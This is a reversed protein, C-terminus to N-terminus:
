LLGQHQMVMILKSQINDIKLQMANLSRTMKQLQSNSVVPAATPKPSSTHAAELKSIMDRMQATLTQLTIAGQALTEPNNQSMMGETHEEVVNAAKNIVQVPNANHSDPISTTEPDNNAGGHMMGAWLMDQAVTGYINKLHEKYSPDVRKLLANISKTLTREM